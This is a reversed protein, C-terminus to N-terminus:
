GRLTLVACRAERIVHHTTSGFFFMDAAGRGRVGLVILDVDLTKALQLIERYPKGEHVIEAINCSTRAAGPVMAHLRARADRTWADLDLTVPPAFDAYLPHTEIVHTLTLAAKNEQALSLAYDLALRSSDSFDLACLIRTFAAPGPPMADPVKPPVTMVPSHAKRLVKETVSGLYLREFGSRGHTGLVILDAQLRDAQVLIERHTDLAETVLTEVRIGPVQETEIFRQLEATVQGLDIPPLAIPAIEAGFYYPVATLAPAAPLVHLATVGAGYTRAVALAHDLARRSFDSFDVACLIRKIQIM